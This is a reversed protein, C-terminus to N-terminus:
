AYKENKKLNKKTKCITPIILWLIGISIVYMIDRIYPVIVCSIGTLAVIAFYKRQVREGEKIEERIETLLWTSMGFFGMTVACATISELHEAIGQIELGRSYAYITLVGAGSSIIGTITAIIANKIAGTWYGSREILPLMLMVLLISRPWQPYPKWEEWKVNGIGAYLIVSMVGIIGFRLISVACVAKEKGKWSAFAALGLIVSLVVYGNGRGPWCAPIECLMRATLLILVVIRLRSVTKTEEEGICSGWLNCLIGIISVIVIPLWNTGISAQITPILLATSMFTKNRKDM